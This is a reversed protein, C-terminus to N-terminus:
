LKMPAGPVVWKQSQWRHGALIEMIVLIPIVPGSSVFIKLNVWSWIIFLVTYWKEWNKTLEPSSEAM